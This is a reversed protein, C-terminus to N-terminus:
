LDSVNREYLPKLVEIYYKEFRTGYPSWREHHALYETDTEAGLKVMKDLKQKLGAYNPGIQRIVEDGYLCFVFEPETRIAYHRAIKPSVDSDVKIVELFRNESAIDVIHQDTIECQPNWNSRFYVLVHSFKNKNLHSNLTELSSFNKLNTYCFKTAIRFM